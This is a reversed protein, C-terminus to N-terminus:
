PRMTSNRFHPFQTCRASSPFICSASTCHHVPAFICFLSSARRHCLQMLPPAAVQEALSANEKLPSGSDASGALLNAEKVAALSSCTGSNHLGLQPNSSITPVPLKLYHMGPLSKPMGETAQHWVPHRFGDLGQAPPLLPKARVTEPVLDAADCRLVVEPQLLDIGASLVSSQCNAMDSLYDFCIGPHCAVVDLDGTTNPYLVPQAGGASALSTADVLGFAACSMAAVLAVLFAAALATSRWPQSKELTKTPARVKAKAVPKQTPPPKTKIVSPAKGPLVAACKEVAQTGKLPQPKTTRVANKCELFRGEVEFRGREGASWGFSSHTAFVRHDKQERLIAKLKKSALTLGQRTRQPPATPTLKPPSRKGDQPLYM